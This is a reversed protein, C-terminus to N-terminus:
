EVQRNDPLTLTPQKYRKRIKGTQRILILGLIVFAVHYEFPYPRIKAALHDLVGIHTWSPLDHHDHLQDYGIVIVGVIFVLRLVTTIAQVVSDIKRQVGQVRMAGQRLSQSAFDATLKADGLAGAASTLLGGGSRLRRWSRKRYDRFYRRLIKNPNAGGLLTNLNADLTSMARGVRLFQWSPNVKYKRSIASLEVALGGTITKEHFSLGDLHTKAEWARYIEIADAKFAAIDFLPISDAQLLYYDLSKSYDGSNVAQASMRYYEILKKEVTGVAGLDLLALRSERLLVINGPHLDGHFLRDEFLQRYFSRMLRSGVKRPNIDNEECWRRLRAPDRDEVRLYDSMLVGEVFEMVIIKKGSYRRHVKPVYVNHEKLNKRLRRLNSVEYRYDVEEGVIQQLERIMGDWAIYSVGPVRKALRIMFTILKLDRQLVREIGPRQVKIAVVDGTERMRARHVQSISAAAFPLEEYYSFVGEVPGAISDEVVKRAVEPPFGNARYALQSLQDIMHPSFIDTRLSLLQGTKVWLGGNDEMFARVRLARAQPDSRRTVKAWLLGLGLRYIAMVLRLTEFRGAKKVP